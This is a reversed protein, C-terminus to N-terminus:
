PVSRPRVGARLRTVDLLMEQLRIDGKACYRRLMWFVLATLFGYESLGRGEHYTAYRELADLLEANNAPSLQASVCWNGYDDLWRRYGEDLENDALRSRLDLVEDWTRSEETDPLIDVVWRPHEGDRGEFPVSHSLDITFDGRHYPDIARRRENGRRLIDQALKYRSNCKNGMPVLNRLNAAAFPYRSQALYHDLAERPKGPADFKECGCFPCVHHKTAHYIKHYHRDRICLTTLADFAAEYLKAIPERISEPLDSLSPCDCDCSLLERIRNQEDMALLVLAREEDSLEALAAGYEAVRGAISRYRSLRTRHATPILQPWPPVPRDSEIHAHVARVIDCLVAHLWNDSAVPPPYPYFL